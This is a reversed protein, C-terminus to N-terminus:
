KKSKLDLSFAKLTDELFTGFRNKTAWRKARMNIEPDLTFMGVVGVGVCRM